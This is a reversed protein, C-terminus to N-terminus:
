KKGFIRNMNVCLIELTQTTSQRGSKVQWEADALEAMGASIGTFGLARALSRKRSAEAPYLRPEEGAAIQWLLRFERALVAIAFFLLSGDTDAEVEQWAGMFDGATIKKILNFADSEQKASDAGILEPRIKGDEALLALKRLENIVAQADQPATACFRALDDPSFALGMNKAQQAAFPKLNTGLGVSRWVWGKKDAFTFCGTKQIHAPIKFKGKEAEVELCFIPWAHELQRALAASLGKWIAAGWAEAQRVIIVRNDLFLGVQKLGEWFSDDPEEDGWFTLRRWQGSQPPSAQIQRELEEKLM